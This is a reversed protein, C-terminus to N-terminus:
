KIIESASRLVQVPINLNVKKAATLNVALSYNKDTDVPINKPEVNDKLIMVAQDGSIAGLAKFSIGLSLVAGQSLLQGLSVYTPIDNEQAVRIMGMGYRSLSTDQHAILVDVRGVLQETAKAVEEETKCERSVTSTLVELGLKEGANKFDQTQIEANPEDKTYVIGLRKATSVVKMIAKIQAYAPVLCHTGTVNRGPKEKSEVIGSRVPAAVATFVIPIDKVIEVAPLTSRTGTTFILDINGGSAFKELGKKYADMDGFADLLKFEVTMDKQEELVSVFATRGVHYDPNDKLVALGITFNKKNEQAQARQSFVFGNLVVFATLFILGWGVRKNLIKNKM